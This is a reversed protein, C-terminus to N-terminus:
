RHRVRRAAKADELEDISRRLSGPWIFLWFLYYLPFLLVAGTMDYWRVGVGIRESQRHIHIASMIALFFWLAALEPESPFYM